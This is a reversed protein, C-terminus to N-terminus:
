SMQRASRRLPLYVMDRLSSQLQHYPASRRLASLLSPQMLTGASSELFLAQKLRTEQQPHGSTGVGSIEAGPEIDLLNPSRRECSVLIVFRSLGRLNQPRVHCDDSLAQIDSDTVHM